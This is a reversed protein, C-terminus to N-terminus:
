ACCDIEGAHDSCFRGDIDSDVCSERDHSGCQEGCDACVGFEASVILEASVVALREVPASLAVM